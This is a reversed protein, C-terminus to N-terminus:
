RVGYMSVLAQSVTLSPGLTGQEEAVKSMRRQRKTCLFAFGNEVSDSM